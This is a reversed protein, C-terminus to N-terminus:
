GGKLLGQQKWLRISSPSAKEIDLDEDLVHRWEKLARQKRQLGVRFHVKYHLNMPLSSGQICHTARGLDCYFTDDDGAVWMVHRYCDDYPATMVLEGNRFLLCTGDTLEAIWEHM